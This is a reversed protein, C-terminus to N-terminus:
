NWSVNFNSCSSYRDSFDYSRYSVHTM